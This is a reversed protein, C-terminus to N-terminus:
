RPGEPGYIARFLLFGFFGIAAAYAIVTFVAMLPDNEPNSSCGALAGSLLGAVAGRCARRIM